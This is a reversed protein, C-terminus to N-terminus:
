RAFDIARTERIVVVKIQGPYQLEGEIKRAVTESIRAMDEDSVREPRVMVRLERGAQIAFCREVGRQEMALEELKELRKVYGEFMERRAGPRAGSIADAATVLWAEAYRHPEEDHHSRIANLVLDPEKYRKCLRYGLEVHSLEQEHTLGKGVDHLLGARRTMQVDLGMEAALNGALVAVERSHALQNQGYSTRFKLNGLVKVIEAHVNHIGLGYLVEEAAERMEVEVEEQSKAVIEEIRGPHIRGDEILRALAVRAVERRIPNYGSLVVAEPTDDIIVDIGTAQEFARINRGERGIIRGKMEDSPLQVVSVTLQAAEDAAMRQVAMAVLRKAERDATRQAEERIERLHNAAAARAEDELAEILQAKAEEATMGSVAQLREHAESRTREVESVREALQRERNKLDGLRGDLTRSQEDLADQRRDLQDSKRDAAETRQVLRREGRKVEERRRSEEEEWTEKLRFRTEQAQLETSRRLNDADDQARKRILSAEDKAAEKEKLQRTRERGRGVLYGLVAAVAVAGAALGMGLPDM